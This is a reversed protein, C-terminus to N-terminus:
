GLRVKPSTTIIPCWEIQQWFAVPSAKFHRLLYFFNDVTRATFFQDLKKSHVIGLSPMKRSDTAMFFFQKKRRNSRIRIEYRLRTKQIALCSTILSLYHVSRVWISGIATTLSYSPSRSNAPHFAWSCKYGWCFGSLPFHPILFSGIKFHFAPFWTVPELLSLFWNHELVKTLRDLQLM